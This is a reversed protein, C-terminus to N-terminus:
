QIAFATMGSPIQSIQSRMETAAYGKTSIRLDLDADGNSKIKWISKSVVENESPTTSPTRMLTAGGSLAVAVPRDADVWPLEGFPTKAATADVFIELQPLYTIVHDFAVPLDLYEFQASGVNILAPAAEINVSTLLTQFLLQYDKCDGYRLQLITNLDHPVWGGGGIFSAVYRVNKQMWNYIARAQERPETIGKTIEAALAKVETTPIAKTSNAEGYAQALSEQKKFSSVLVRPVSTSWNVTQQDMASAVQKGQVHWTKIGNKIETTTQLGVAVLQMNASEPAEMRYTFEEFTFLPNLYVADTAWRHLVLNKEFLRWKVFTKDGNRVDSFTVQIISVNPWSVGNEGSAVGNQIQIAAPPVDIKRGDPKLTYAEALTLTQLDRNYSRSAMGISRAGQDSLAQLEQSVERESTLDENFKILADYKTVKWHLSAVPLEQAGAPLRLILFFFVFARGLLKLM